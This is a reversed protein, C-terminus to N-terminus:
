RNPSVIQGEAFEAFFNLFALVDLFSGGLVFIGAPFDVSPPIIKLNSRYTLQPTGM